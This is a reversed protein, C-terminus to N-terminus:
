NPSMWVPYKKETVYVLGDFLDLSYVLGSYLEKKVFKINWNTRPKMVRMQVGLNGQDAYGLSYGSLLCMMEINKALKRNTMRMLYQGPRDKIPKATLEVVKDVFHRLVAANAGYIAKDPLRMDRRRTSGLHKKLKEILNTENKIFITPNGIKKEGVKWQIGINDLIPTLKRLHNLDCTIYLYGHKRKEIFGFLVVYALITYWDEQSVSRYHGQVMIIESDKGTQSYRFKRFLIKGDNPRIEHAYKPPLMGIKDKEHYIVRHDPTVGLGWDKNGMSIIEGEYKITHLAFPQIFEADGIFNRVLVKDRGSIDAIQKWGHETLIKTEAVFAM